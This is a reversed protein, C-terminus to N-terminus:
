HTPRSASQPKYSRSNDFSAALCKHAFLQRVGQHLPNLGLAAKVGALLACALKSESQAVYFIPRFFAEHHVADRLRTCYM